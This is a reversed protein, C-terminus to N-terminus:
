NSPWNRRRRKRPLVSCGRCCNEFRRGTVSKASTIARPVTSMGLKPSAACLARSSGAKRLIPWLRAVSGAHKPIDSKATSSAKDSGSPCPGRGRRGPPYHVDRTSMTPRNPSPIAWKRRGWGFGLDQETQPRVCFQSTRRPAPQLKVYSGAPGPSTHDASM